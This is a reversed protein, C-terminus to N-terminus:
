VEETPTELEVITINPDCEDVIPAHIMVESIKVPIQLREFLANCSKSLKRSSPKKKNRRKQRLNGRKVYPIIEEALGIDVAEQATIYLDKGTNLVSHFFDKGLNSNEALLEVKDELMRNYLDQDVKRNSGNSSGGDWSIDHLMVLTHPALYREDAAAMVMTAASMISGFGYFKFQCPQIMMTDILAWADNVDGGGSNFYISIPTKPAQRVMIHISVIATTVTQTNIETSVQDPGANFNGFYIIRNKYDANYDVIEDPKTSSRPKAM